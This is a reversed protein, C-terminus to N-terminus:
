VLDAGVGCSRSGSLLGEAALLADRAQEVDISGSVAEPRPTPELIQGDGIDRGSAALMEGIISPLSANLAAAYETQRLAILDLVESPSGVALGTASGFCESWEGLAEQVVEDSWFEREMATLAAGLRESLLEIGSPMATYVSRDCEARRSEALATARDVDVPALSDGNSGGVMQAVLDARAQRVSDEVQRVADSTVLSAEAESSKAAASTGEPLGLCEDM